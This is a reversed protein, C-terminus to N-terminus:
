KNIQRASCSITQYRGYKILLAGLCISVEVKELMEISIGNDPSSIKIPSKLGKLHPQRAWDPRHVPLFSETETHQLSPIAGGPKM